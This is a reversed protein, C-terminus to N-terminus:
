EQLYFGQAFDVKAQYLITLCSAEEVGEAIVKKDLSHAMETLDRVMHQNQTERTLGNIYSADIKIYSVDPLHNQLLLKPNFGTGFHELAMPCGIQQLGQLLTKADNIQREAVAESIEIILRKGDVQRGRMLKQLFPLVTKDRVGQESLKVFFQTQLGTKHHECLMDVASKLVWKDLLVSAGARAAAAFLQGAPVVRSNGDSMRLYVEYKEDAEGHLSAIPQFALSLRNENIAARITGEMDLTDMCYDAQPAEKQYVEICNGGKKRAAQCAHFADDLISQPSPASSQVFAIGISCMPVVSQGPLPIVSHELRARITEALEKIEALSKEQVLLGFTNDGVRGILASSRYEQMLKGVEIVLPMSVSVGHRERLSDFHDLSLYMVVCRSHSNAAKTLAKGVLAAFHQCNYLGTLADRRNAAELKRELDFEESQDSAILQICREQSCHARSVALKLNFPKGGRMGVVAIDRDENNNDDMCERMFAKFQSHHDPAILDMIPMAELDEMSNYGFLHLYSPNARVHVGDHVFAIANRSSEFLVQNQRQSERYLHELHHRKRREELDALEQGVALQLRAPSNPIVQRVGAQLLEAIAAEDVEEAVVVISIDQKSARVIEAAQLASFGDCQPVAIFLDWEREQLATNLEDATQIYRPRTHHRAKRLHNLLVEADNITEEMVLLWIANDRNM